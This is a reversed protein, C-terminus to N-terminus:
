VHARGIKFGLRTVLSGLVLYAVVALWGRWGLSAGLLTGLIWAHFWGAATLVPVRRLPLILLANALASFLWALGAPPLPLLPMPLLLPM